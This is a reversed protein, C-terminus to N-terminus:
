VLGAALLNIVQKNINQKLPYTIHKLTNTYVCVTDSDFLRQKITNTCTYM